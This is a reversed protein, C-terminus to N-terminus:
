PRYTIQVNRSDAYTRYWNVGYLLYFKLTMQKDRVVSIPIRAMGSVVM